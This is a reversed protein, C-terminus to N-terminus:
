KDSDGDAKDLSKTYEDLDAKYQEEEILRIDQLIQSMTLNIVFAPLGSNNIADVIKEKFDRQLVTAPKNM